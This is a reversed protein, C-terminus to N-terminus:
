QNMHCKFKSQEDYTFLICFLPNINKDVDKFRNSSLTIERQIKTLLLRAALNIHKTIFAAIYKIASKIVSFLTSTRGYDFNDSTVKFFNLM